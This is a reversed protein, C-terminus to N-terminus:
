KEEQTRNTQATLGAQCCAAVHMVGPMTHCSCECPPTSAVPDAPEPARGGAWKEGCDDCVHLGKHFAPEGCVCPNDGDQEEGHPWGRRYCQDRM